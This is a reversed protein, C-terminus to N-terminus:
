KKVAMILVVVFLVVVVLPIIAGKWDKTQANKGMTLANRLGPRFIFFVAVMALAILSGELLGVNGM